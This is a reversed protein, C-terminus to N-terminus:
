SSFVKEINNRIMDDSHDQLFAKNDVLDSIEESLLIKYFDMYGDIVKVIGPYKSSYGKFLPIDTGIVQINNSLADILVGSMRYVFSKPYPLFVRETSSILEDYEQEKIYGQFVTLYDNSYNTNKSKIVVRKNSKKLSETKKEYEIIQRIISEDNSNSPAVCAYKKEVINKKFNCEHPVCTIRDPSIYFSDILYKKMFDEFVIHEIDQCIKKYVFAQKRNAVYQDINGHEMVVIQVNKLKGIRLFLALVYIDYSTFFIFEANIKKALKSIEKCKELCAQYYSVRTNGLNNRIYHFTTRDDEKSYWNSPCLVHVNYKSSLIKIIHEEQIKHGIVHAEGLM